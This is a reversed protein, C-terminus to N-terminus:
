MWEKMGTDTYNLNLTSGPMLTVYGNGDSFNVSINSVSGAGNTLWLDSPFLVGFSKGKYSNVSPSLLFVQSAQYPNQWVGSVYKDCVQNNSVTANASANSGYYAYNFYLRALTIRGPQRYSYWRNSITDPYLFGTANTHIRASALTNYVDWFAQDDAYNSDALVATGSYNELNTFEFGYDRLIGYPVKSRDINTFVTQMAQYLGTNIGTQASLNTLILSFFVLFSLTKLISKM